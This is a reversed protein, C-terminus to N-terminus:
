DTKDNWRSLRGVVLRASRKVQEINNSSLFTVNLTSLVNVRHFSLIGDKRADLSEAAALNKSSVFKLLEEFAEEGAEAGEVARLRNIEL